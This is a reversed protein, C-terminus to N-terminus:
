RAFSESSITTFGKSQLCKGALVNDEVRLAVYAGDQERTIFAYIYEINVKAAALTNLVRALGGPKDSLSVVLVPTLSGIYGAKALVQLAGSPDDVILRLIGYNETDAISLARLDIGADALITTVEALSSPKNEIFVSIQDITM